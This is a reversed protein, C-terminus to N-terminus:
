RRCPRRGLLEVLLDDDAVASRLERLGTRLRDRATNLPVGTMDAVEAVSHGFVFRFVLSLRRPEPIKALHAALRQRMLAHEPEPIRDDSAAFASGDAVTLQLRQSRRLRSLYRMAVRGAVASAWTALSSKGRYNGLSEMIELMCTGVIDDKDADGGLRFVARQIRPLLMKVVEEGKDRRTLAARALALDGAHADPRAPSSGAPSVDEVGKKTCSQTM